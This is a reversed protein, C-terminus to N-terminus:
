WLYSVVIQIPAVPAARIDSVDDSAVIHRRPAESWETPVQLIMRTLLHKIVM